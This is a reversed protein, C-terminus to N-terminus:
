TNVDTAVPRKLHAFCMTNLVSPDAGLTGDVSLLHRPLLRMLGHMTQSVLCFGM